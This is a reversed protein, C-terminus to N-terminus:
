PNSDEVESAAESESDPSSIMDGSSGNDLDSKDLKRQARREAKRQQKDKRAM